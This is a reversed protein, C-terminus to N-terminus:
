VVKALAQAASIDSQQTSKDGGGLLVVVEHGKEYLISATVEQTHSAFKLFEMVLPNSMARIAKRWDISVFRFACM